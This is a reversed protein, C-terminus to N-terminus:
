SRKASPRFVSILDQGLLLSETTLSDVKNRFVAYFSLAPIAVVLGLLTTVLAVGIDGALDAPNPSGGKTVISFFARIMGWVTGMLGLMPGINGALNLWEVNRLQRTLRDDAAEEMAREMAGYGYNAHSMAEHMIHGLTSPDEETLELVDRYQRSEFLEEIQARTVEPLINDKRFDMFFKIVIAWMAFNIVWLLWGIVGGQIVLVKFYNIKEAPEDQALMMVTSLISTM